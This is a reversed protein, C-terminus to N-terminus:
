EFSAAAALDDVNLWDVNEQRLVRWGYERVFGGPSNWFRTQIGRAHAAAVMARVRRRGLCPLLWAAPLTRKFDASALPSLAPTYIGALDKEVASLPADLFLDRPTSPSHGLSQVSSLPAHGSAIVTLLGRRPSPLGSSWTTLLGRARLPALTEYLKAFTRLFPLHLTSPLLPLAAYEPGDSKIDILLQLPLSMASSFIGGSSPLGTLEEEASAISPCVYQLGGGPRATTNAAEILAMIPNLYLAALTKEPNLANRTHGVQPAAMLGWIFRYVCVGSVLLEGDVLWVDAEVSGAGYSLADFLPVTHLYDNHAHFRRPRAVGAMSAPAVRDYNDRPAHQSAFQYLIGNAGPVLEGMRLFYLRWLFLAPVAITSCLVTFVFM